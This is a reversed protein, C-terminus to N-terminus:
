GEERRHGSAVEALADPDIDAASVVAVKAPTLARLTSTRVGGEIIAREGLVSGPGVEAVPAGDVEVALVGDLLLFLEDGDEGQETIVDGEKVKRITPKVGSRMIQLSLERELATEVAAMVAPSDVDGWPTNDGFHELSWTKFDILGSKAALDGQADYIWHRPFPSAGVVEFQANGDANITLELTTWATPAAIKMLRGRVHRPMPAGTRGGATQVFRVSTEQIVPEAQLDPFAVAPITVSGLGLRLTTAGIHGGASYGAAVVRDSEVEIWAKLENAFRFRDASHLEELDEIHDPLPDDYRSVGIVMPMKMVGAM